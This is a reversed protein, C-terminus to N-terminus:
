FVSQKIYMTSNCMMSIDGTVNILSIYPTDFLCLILDSGDTRYIKNKKMRSYPNHFRNYNFDM